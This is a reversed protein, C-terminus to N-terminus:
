KTTVIPILGAKIGRLINFLYKKRPHLLLPFLFFKFMYKIGSSFKWYFPVYSRKVLYCYNRYLYYCREPTPAKIKFLGLLKKDEGISHYLLANELVFFRLGKQKRGRWCWELDVGDIFLNEDLPGIAQWSDKSFFTGSSMLQPMEKVGPEDKLYTGKKIRGIYPKNSVKNIVQPGIAGPLYGKSVLENFRKHLAEIMGEGPLSDQDFFIFFSCHSCLYNVGINQAKAIGLNKQLRIIKLNPFDSELQFLEDNHEVPTNDVIVCHICNASVLQALSHLSTICPYFTVIVAGTDQLQFSNNTNEAHLQL